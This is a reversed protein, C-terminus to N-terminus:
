FNPKDDVPMHYGFVHQNNEACVDETIERVVHRYRRM